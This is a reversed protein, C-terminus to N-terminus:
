AHSGGEGNLNMSLQEEETGQYQNRYKDALVYKPKGLGGKNNRNIVGEKEMQELIEQGIKQRAPSRIESPRVNLVHPKHMIAKTVADTVPRITPKIHRGIVLKKVEAYIMQYAPKSAFNDSNLGGDQGGNSGCLIRKEASESVSQDPTDSGQNKKRKLADLARETEHLELLSAKLQHPTKRNRRTTDYGNTILWDRSEAFRRGLYHFAYEFFLIITLSLSFSAIIGSWGFSTRILNVLPHYNNEDREMQKATTALAIARSASAANAQAIMQQVAQVRAESEACDKYIGAAVKKRCTALRAQAQQLDSSYPTYGTTTAAGISSVVAQYTPSALSKSTMRIDDRTMGQGLESLVSFGAAFCVAIITMGTASKSDQSYLIGQFLTMAVCVGISPLANLWQETNWTWFHIDGVFYGVVFYASMLFATIGAVIFAFLRKRYASYAIGANFNQTSM